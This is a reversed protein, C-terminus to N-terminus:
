VIGKEKLIGLVIDFKTVVGAFKKGDVVPIIEVRNLKMMREAEMVGADQSITIPIESLLDDVLFLTAADKPIDATLLESITMDDHSAYKAARSFHAPINSFQEIVNELTITGILNGANDIVPLVPSIHFKGFIELLQGLNTSRRVTVVDKLMVDKVKM